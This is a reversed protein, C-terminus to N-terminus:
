CELTPPPTPNSYPTAKAHPAELEARPPLAQRWARGWSLQQRNQKEWFPSPLPGLAHYTENPLFPQFCCVGAAPLNCAEGAGAQTPQPSMVQLPMPFDRARPLRAQVTLVKHPFLLTDRIAEACDQFWLNGEM